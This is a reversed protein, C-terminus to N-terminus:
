EATRENKENTYISILRDVAGDLNDGPQIDYQPRPCSRCITANGRQGALHAVRFEQLAEGGWIETIPTIGVNGLSLPIDPSCCPSYSGDPHIVAMYFPFPCVTVREAEGGCHRKTFDSGFVSHDIEQIVPIVEEIAMEDSIDGFIQLFKEKDEETPVATAVTKVFIKAHNRHTFFYRINGVLEDFDVDVGAVDRCKEANIGQISIRIRDLGAAILRQSIDPTLLTGNSVIEIREAINQHKAFKVMEVIDPHTLPEGWGAFILVKLRVSFRGADKICKKFVDLDMITKKFGSRATLEPTLSHLCYGCKLNCRHSPFVHLAFPAPLPLCDALEKREYGAGTVIKAIM